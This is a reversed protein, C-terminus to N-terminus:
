KLQSLSLNVSQLNSDLVWVYKQHLLYVEDADM